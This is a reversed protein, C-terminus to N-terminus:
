IKIFSTECSLNELLLKFSVTCASYAAVRSTSIVSHRFFEFMTDCVLIPILTTRSYYNLGCNFSHICPTPFVTM